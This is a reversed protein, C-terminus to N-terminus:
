VIKQFYLIRPWFTSAAFLSGYQTKASTPQDASSTVFKRIDRQQNSSLLYPAPSCHKLDLFLAKHHYNSTHQIHSSPFLFDINCLIPFQSRPLNQLKTRRSSLPIKKQKAKKSPHISQNLPNINLFNSQYNTECQTKYIVISITPKTLHAVLCDSRENRQKKKQEVPVLQRTKIQFVLKIESFKQLHSCRSFAGSFPIHHRGTYCCLIYPTRFAIHNRIKQKAINSSSAFSGIVVSAQIDKSSCQQRLM